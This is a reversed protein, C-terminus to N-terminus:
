EHTVIPKTQFLNRQSIMSIYKMILYALFLSTLFCLQKLRTSWWLNLSTTSEGFTSVSRLFTNMRNQYWYLSHKSALSLKPSTRTYFLDARFHNYVLCTRCFRLFITIVIWLLSVRWVFNQTNLKLLNKNWYGSYKSRIDNKLINSVEKKCYQKYQTILWLKYLHNICVNEWFYKLTINIIM